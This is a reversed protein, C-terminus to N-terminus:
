SSVESTLRQQRSEFSLRYREGGVPVNILGSNSTKVMRPYWFKTRASRDNAVGFPLGNHAHLEFEKGNLWGVEYSEDHSQLSLTDYDYWFDTQVLGSGSTVQQFDAVNDPELRAGRSFDICRGGVIGAVRITYGSSLADEAEIAFSVSSSSKSAARSVVTLEKWAGRVDSVSQTQEDGQVTARITVTDVVVLANDCRVFIHLSWDSSASYTLGNFVDSCTIKGASGADTVEFQMYNKLPVDVSPQEIAGFGKVELSGARVNAGESWNTPATNAKQGDVGPDTAGSPLWEIIPRGM